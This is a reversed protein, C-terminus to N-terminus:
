KDAKSGSEQKNGKVTGSDKSDIVGSARMAEAREDDVEFEAGAPILEDTEIDIFDSVVKYIKM